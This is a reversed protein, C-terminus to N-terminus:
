FFTYGNNAKTSDLCTVGLQQTPVVGESGYAAAPQFISGVIMCALVAVILTITKLKEM